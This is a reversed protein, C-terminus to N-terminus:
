TQTHKYTYIKISSYQSLSLIFLDTKHENNPNKSSM